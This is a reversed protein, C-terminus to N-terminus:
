VNEEPIIGDTGVETDDQIGASDTDMGEGIEILRRLENESFKSFDIQEQKEPKTCQSLKDMRIKRLDIITNLKLRQVRTLETHLNRLVDFVDKTKTVTETQRTIGKRPEDEVTEVVRKTVSDLTIGSQKNEFTQISKMLQSERYTLLKLKDVLVTEENEFDMADLRQMVNEPITDFCPNAYAGHIFHNQNGKPAGHGKANQNGSPAGGQNLPQLKKPKSPQLRKPSTAVEKEQKPKFYRSVWSKVTNVSVEYKDAIEQYKKGSLWDEYAPEWAKM